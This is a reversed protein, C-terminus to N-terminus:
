AQGDAEAGSPSESIQRRMESVCYVVSFGIIASYLGAYLMLGVVVGETDSINKTQGAGGLFTLYRTVAGVVFMAVATWCAWEWSSVFTQTDGDPTESSFRHADLLAVVILAM